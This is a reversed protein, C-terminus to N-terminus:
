PGEVKAIAARLPALWSDDPRHLKPLAELYGLAGRATDLLALTRHAKTRWEDHGKELQVIRAEREVLRTELCAIRTRLQALSDEWCDRIHVLAKAVAPGPTHESM